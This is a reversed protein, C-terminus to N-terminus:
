NWEIAQDENPVQTNIKRELTMSGEATYPLELGGVSTYDVYTYWINNIIIYHHVLYPQVDDIKDYIRFSAKGDTQFKMLPNESWLEVKGQDGEEFRAFIRYNKRDTRTENINGAYFFVTNEDVVYARSTEMGIAGSTDDDSNALKLTTAAYNGSYDNYPYIRLMANNYHKRPHSRYGYSPDDAVKIPLVWKQTLDIGTFDFRIDLLGVDKGAPIVMTEPYSAYDSMDVYYLESRNQFRQYNLIGLTDTDHAVHVTIDAPNTTTGSVIVPLLYNSKGQGFTLSGDDNHRSFPVYIATVGNDDLPARFGIYHEYQEEKWEDNCATLLLLSFSFIFCIKSCRSCFSAQKPKASDRCSEVTTLSFYLAKSKM